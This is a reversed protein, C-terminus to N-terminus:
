EHHAETEAMGFGFRAMYEALGNIVLALQKPSLSIAQARIIGDGDTRIISLRFPQAVVQPRFVLLLTGGEEGTFVFGGTM